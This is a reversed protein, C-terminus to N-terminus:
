VTMVDIENSRVSHFIVCEEERQSSHVFRWFGTRILAGYTHWKEEWKRRPLSFWNHTKSTEERTSSMIAYADLVPYDFEVVSGGRQRAAAVAWKERLEPKKDLEATRALKKGIRISYSCLCLIYM